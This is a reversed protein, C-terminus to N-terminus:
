PCSVAPQCSAPRRRPRRRSRRRRQGDSAPDASGLLRALTEEDAAGGFYKALVARFVNGDPEGPAQGGGAPAATGAGGTEATEVEDAEAGDAEAAAAAAAFLTMSSRLKVADVPGFIAGASRGATAEVIRASERLRPGLVPHALYARAEAVSSIAYERSMASMGLGAVQPFVFWMWHSVKTGAQLETVARQYTGGREQAAVFRELRWPDGM